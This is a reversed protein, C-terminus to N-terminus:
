AGRKRRARAWRSRCTSRGCTKASIKFALLRGCQCFRAADILPSGHLDSVAVREEIALAAARLAHPRFWGRLELASVYARIEPYAREFRRLARSASRRCGRHTRQDIRAGASLRRGCWLCTRPQRSQQHSAFTSAKTPHQPARPAHVKRARPRAPRAASACSPGALDGFPAVQEALRSVFAVLLSRPALATTSVIAARAADRKRLFRSIASEDARYKACILDSIKNQRAHDRAHARLYPTGAMDHRGRRPVAVVRRGIM